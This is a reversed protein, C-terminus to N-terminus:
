FGEGKKRFAFSAAEDPQRKKQRFACHLFEYAQTLPYLGADPNALEYQHAPAEPLNLM